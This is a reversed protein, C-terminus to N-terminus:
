FLCMLRTQMAHLAKQLPGQLHRQADQRDSVGWCRSAAMVADTGRDLGIQSERKGNIKIALM